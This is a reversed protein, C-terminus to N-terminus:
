DGRFTTFRYRFAGTPRAGSTLLQSAIFERRAKLGEFNDFTVERGELVVKLESAAIARDLATIDATTFAM